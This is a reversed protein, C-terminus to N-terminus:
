RQEIQFRFTYPSGPGGVVNIDGDHVETENTPSDKGIARAAVITGCMSGRDVVVFRDDVRDIRFHDRSINRGGESRDVLYLDNVHPARGRRREIERKLKELGTSRSERGVNFPFRTIRILDREGLAFRAADTEARLM